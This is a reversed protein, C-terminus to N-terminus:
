ESSSGALLQQAIVLAYPRPEKWLWQPDLHFGPLIESHFIGRRPRVERYRGRANLRLLLITKEEEDIIWYEPVGASQYQQRKEEYDREVSEPSVIEVALDPPGEVYGRQIRDGHEALVFALDPEPGNREKLRFAVRSGFVQGLKKAEAYGYMLVLLWGFLDNADTNDPSAMYIVGDILDAKQGDPILACFDEFTHCGSRTKTGM